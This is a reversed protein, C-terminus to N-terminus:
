KEEFESLTIDGNNLMILANKGYEVAKTETEELLLELTFHLKQLLDFDDKRMLANKEFHYGTDRKNNPDKYIKLDARKENVYSGIPRFVLKNDIYHMYSNDARFGESISLKEALEKMLEGLLDTHESHPNTKYVSYRPKEWSWPIVVEVAEGEAITNKFLKLHMKGTEILGFCEPCVSDKKRLNNEGCGPCPTETYGAKAM